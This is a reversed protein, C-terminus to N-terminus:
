DEGIVKFELPERSAREMELTMGEDEALLRRLEARKEADSMAGLAASVHVDVTGKHEVTTRKAFRDDLASQLHRVMAGDPPAVIATGTEPDEGIKRGLAMEVSTGFLRENLEVRTRAWGEVFEPDQVWELVTVWRQKALKACRDLAFNAEAAHSFFNAYLRKKAAVGAAAAAVEQATKADVDAVTPALMVAMEEPTLPQLPPVYPVGRKRKGNGKLDLPNRKATM